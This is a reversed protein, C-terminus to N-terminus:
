AHAYYIYEEGSENWNNNDTLTFGTSIPAGIDGDYQSQNNVIKIQKDNGAGWGRTTDVLFWEYSATRCKLLLFRPAFGTTITQESSSGSFSGVKSVGPISAFLCAIFSASGDANTHWSNGTTFYEATPYRSYMNSSDQFEVVSQNTRLFYDESNSGGNLDKHWLSWHLGQNTNTTAAKKKFLIMEPVRGLGHRRANDGGRTAGSTWTQVDFGGHRRFMWAQHDSPTGTTFFKTMHDFTAGSQTHELEDKNINLGKKGMLRANVNWDDASDIDRWFAWDVPFGATFNEQSGNNAASMAFVKTAEGAEIPKGTEGDARRIALYIYSSNSANIQNNATCLQFGHGSLRIYNLDGSEADGQNVAIKRSGSDAPMGRVADYIQWDEAYEVRKIMLFQPEFGLYVESGSVTGDSNGDNGNGKYRGCKVIAEKNEGFQFVGADDFPSDTLNDGVSGATALTIPTVTASTASANNCCLLKTNTTSGLPKTPPKFSSTYLATGKVVRVNSIWGDFYSNTASILTPSNGITCYSDQNSLFGTFTQTDELMGDVFLRWTNGDRSVVIHHWQKDNAFRKVASKLLPSSAMGSYNNVHFSIKNSHDDHDWALYSSHGGWNEDFSIIRPFDQQSANAKMWCEITLDGTGFNFDATTSSASGCTIRDGNADVGICNAGAATSAGGAWLYVIYTAGNIGVDSGGSGTQEVTFSTKTPLTKDFQDANTTVAGTDELYMIQDAGLSRHHVVWSGSTDTRKIMILGPVCGLGHNITQTGGASSISSTYSVVDFFGKAKRFSWSAYKDGSIGSDNDGGVKFGTTTLEKFRTDNTGQGNTSASVVYKNNGRVSDGIVHNRANSRNKIWVMGGETALDLNNVITQTSYADAEGKYPYSSFVEDTYIKESVGQGLMLQQIPTM